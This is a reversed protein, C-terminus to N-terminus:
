PQFGEHGDHNTTADHYISLSNARFQRSRGGCESPKRDLELWRVNVEDGGTTLTGSALKVSNAFPKREYRSSAEGRGPVAVGRGPVSPVNMATILFDNGIDIM